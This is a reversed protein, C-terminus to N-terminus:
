HIWYRLYNLHLNWHLFCMLNLKELLRRQVQELVRELEGLYESRKRQHLGREVLVAKEM